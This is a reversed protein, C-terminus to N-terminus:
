DTSGAGRRIRAAIRCRRFDLSVTEHHVGAAPKRAARNSCPAPWFPGLLRRAPYATATQHAGQFIATLLPPKGGIAVAPDTIRTPNGVLGDALRCWHLSARCPLRQM